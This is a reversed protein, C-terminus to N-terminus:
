GEQIDAAKKQYHEKQSKNETFEIIRYAQHHLNRVFLM